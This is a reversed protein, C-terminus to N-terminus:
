KMVEPAASVRGLDGTPGAFVDPHEAVVDAATGIRLRELEPFAGAPSAAKIARVLRADETVFWDLHCGFTLSDGDFPYACSVLQRADGESVGPTRRLREELLIAAGTDPGACRMSYGLLSYKDGCRSGPYGLRRVRMERMIGQKAEDKARATRLAEERESVKQIGLFMEVFTIEAGWTEVVGTEAAIRLRLLPAADAGPYAGMSIRHLHDVVSYDLALALPRSM